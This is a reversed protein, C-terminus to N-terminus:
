VILAQIVMSENHSHCVHVCVFCVHILMCVALSAFSFLCVALWLYCNNLPLLDIIAAAAAVTRMLVVVAAM